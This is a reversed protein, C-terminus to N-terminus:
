WRQPSAEGKLKVGMREGPTVERLNGATALFPDSTVAKIADQLTGRYYISAEGGDESTWSVDSKVIDLGGARLMDELEPVNKDHKDTNLIILGDSDPSSPSYVVIKKLAGPGENKILKAM